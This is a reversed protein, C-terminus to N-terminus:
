VFITEGSAKFFKGSKDGWLVLNKQGRATTCCLQKELKAILLSLLRISTRARQLTKTTKDWDHVAETSSFTVSHSFNQADPLEKKRVGCKQRSRTKRALITESKREEQVREAETSVQKVQATILEKGLM